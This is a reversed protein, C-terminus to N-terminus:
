NGINLPTRIEQVPRGGDGQGCLPVRSEGLGFAEQPSLLTTLPLLANISSM